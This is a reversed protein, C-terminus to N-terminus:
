RFHVAREDQILKTRKRPVAVLLRRRESAPIARPFHTPMSRGPWPLRRLGEPLLRAHATTSCFRGCRTRNLPLPGDTAAIARRPIAGGAPSLFVRKHEYDRGHGQVLASQRHGRPGKKSIGSGPCARLQRIEFDQRVAVASARTAAGIKKQFKPM